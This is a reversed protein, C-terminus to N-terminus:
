DDPSFWAQLIAIDAEAWNLSQWDAATVWRIADHEQPDLRTGPALRCAVPLLRIRDADPYAHISPAPLTAGTTVEVRVKFEEAMERVLADAPTEGPEVKGGPLEWKGALRKGAPRRAALLRDGADELLACVVEIMASRNGM